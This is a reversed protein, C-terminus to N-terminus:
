YSPIRTCGRLQTWQWILPWLVGEWQARPTGRWKGGRSSDGGSRVGRTGKGTVGLSRLGCFPALRLALVPISAGPQHLAPGLCAPPLWTEPGPWPLVPAPACLASPWLGATRARPGPRALLAEVSFSSELRRPAAHTPAEPASPAGPTGEPSVAGPMALDQGSGRLSPAADPSTRALAPVLPCPLHLSGGAQPRKFRAWFPPATCSPLVTPPWAPGSDGLGTRVGCWDERLRLSSTSLTAPRIRM